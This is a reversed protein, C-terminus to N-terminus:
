GIWRDSSAIMSRTGNQHCVGPMWLHLSEHCLTAQRVEGSGGTMHRAYLTREQPPSTGMGAYPEWVELSANVYRVDHARCWELLDATGTNWALDVILDGPGVHRGFTEGFTEREIRDPVFRAGQEMVWRAHADVNGFDIVTYQSRQAPVHEFLLPLTCRSVAGLGIVLIRGEFATM